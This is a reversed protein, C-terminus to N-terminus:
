VNDEVGVFPILANVFKNESLFVCFIFELKSFLRLNGAALIRHDEIIKYFKIGPQGRKYM